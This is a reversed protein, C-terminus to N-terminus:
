EEEREPVVKGGEKEKNPDAQPFLDSLDEPSNLVWAMLSTAQDLTIEDKKKMESLKQALHIISKQNDSFPMIPDSRTITEFVIPNSKSDEEIQELSRKMVYEFKKEKLLKKSEEQSETPDNGSM